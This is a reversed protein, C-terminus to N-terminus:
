KEELDIGVYDSILSDINNDDLNDIQVFNSKSLNTVEAPNFSGRRAILPIAYKLQNSSM